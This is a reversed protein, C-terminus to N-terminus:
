ATETSQPLVARRKEPCAGKKQNHNITVSEAYKFLKIVNKWDAKNIHFGKTLALLM